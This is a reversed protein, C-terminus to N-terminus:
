VLINSNAKGSIYIKGGSLKYDIGLRMCVSKIPVIWRYLGSNTYTAKFPAAGLTTKKGNWVATKKNETMTLTNGRYKLTVKNGSNTKKVKLSSNKFIKTSAGVYAGDKMFVPVRSTNIKKGNVYIYNKKNQFIKTTGSRYKMQVTSAAQANQPAILVVTMVLGMLLGALRKM